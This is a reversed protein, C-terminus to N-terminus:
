VSAHSSEKKVEGDATGGAWVECRAWAPVVVVVEFKEMLTRREGEPFSPPVGIKEPVQGMRAQYARAAAVARELPTAREDRYIQWIIKQDM